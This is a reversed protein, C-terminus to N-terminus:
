KPGMILVGFNLIGGGLGYLMMGWDKKVLACIALALFELIFIILLPTM